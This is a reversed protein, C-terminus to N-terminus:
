GNKGNIHSPAASDAMDATVSVANLEETCTTVAAPTTPACCGDSRWAQTGERLAVAAIILAAIVLVWVGLPVTGSWLGSSALCRM